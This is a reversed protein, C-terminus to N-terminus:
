LNIWKAFRGYVLYCPRWAKNLLRERCLKIDVDNLKKYIFYDSHKHESETMKWNIISFRKGKCVIFCGGFPEKFFATSLLNFLRLPSFYVIYTGKPDYKDSGYEYSRFITYFFLPIFIMSSLAYSVLRFTDQWPTDQWLTQLLHDLLGWGAAASIILSLLKNQLEKFKIRHYLAIGLFLPVAYMISLYLVWQNEPEVIKDVLGGYIFVCILSIKLFLNTIM